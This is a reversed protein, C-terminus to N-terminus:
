TVGYNIGFNLRLRTDLQTRLVYEIIEGYSLFLIKHIM